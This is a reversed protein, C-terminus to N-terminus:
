RSTVGVGAGCISSALVRWTIKSALGRSTQYRWNGRGALGGWSRVVSVFEILERANKRPEKAMRDFGCNRILM